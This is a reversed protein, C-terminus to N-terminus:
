LKVKGDCRPQGNWKPSSSPTERLGQNAAGCTACMRNAFGASGFSDGCKLCKRRVVRGHLGNARAYLQDIKIVLENAESSLAEAREYVLDIRKQLRNSRVCLRDARARLKRAKAARAKDERTM